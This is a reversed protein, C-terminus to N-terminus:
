PYCYEVSMFDCLYCKWIAYPKMGYPQTAYPLQDYLQIQTRLFINQNSASLINRTLEPLFWTYIIIIICIVSWSLFCKSLYCDLEYFMIRVNTTLSVHVNIWIIAVCSCPFRRHKYNLFEIKIFPTNMLSKHICFSLSM